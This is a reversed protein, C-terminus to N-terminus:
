TEPKHRIQNETVESCRSVASVCLRCETGNSCTRHERELYSLYCINVKIKEEMADKREQGGGGKKVNERQTGRGSDYANPMAGYGAPAYLFLRTGELHIGVFACM